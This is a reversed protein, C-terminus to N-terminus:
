AGLYSKQIHTDDMIAQSTGELVIRGNELVYARSALHLAHHINQEVLLITVGRKQIARITDFVRLVLKPALGWSPEDMMLAKPSAMLGKAIGLMQREGGSLTGAMQDRREKLDPFLQFTFDLNKSLRKWNSPLFAGMKLNELVTMFPFIGAGEPIQSLGLGVIRHPPLQDIRQAIFEIKGSREPLLGSLARLLTTKGAGNSGVVAIVEGAEINLSLGWLVQSHGYYGDLGEAKLLPDM